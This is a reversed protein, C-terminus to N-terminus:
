YVCHSDNRNAVSVFITTTMTYTVSKAKNGPEIRGMKNQLQLILYAVSYSPLLRPIPSFQSPETIM